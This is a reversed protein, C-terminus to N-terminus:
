AHLLTSGVVYLHVLKIVLCYLYTMVVDCMWPCGLFDMVDPMEFCGQINQNVVDM